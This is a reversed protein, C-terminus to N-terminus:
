IPSLIGSFDFEKNDDVLKSTALSLLQHGLASPSLGEITTLEGGWFLSNFQHSYTLFM